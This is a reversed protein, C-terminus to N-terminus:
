QRHSRVVTQNNMQFPRESFVRPIRSLTYEIKLFANLCLLLVFGVRGHSLPLLANKFFALAADNNKGDCNFNWLTDEVQRRELELWGPIVYRKIGNESLVANLFIDDTLRLKEAPGRSLANQWRQEFNKPVSAHRLAIMGTAMLVDVQLAVKSAFPIAGEFFKLSQNFRCSSSLVRGVYGVAVNTEVELFDVLRRLAHPPYRFDDDCFVVVDEPNSTLEEAHLFKTAPGEDSTLVLTVKSEDRLEALFNVPLDQNLRKYHPCIHIVIRDPPLDQQLLSSVTARVSLSRSPITTLSVVITM